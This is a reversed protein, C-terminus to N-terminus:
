YLTFLNAGEISAPSVCVREIESDFRNKGGNLELFELHLILFVLQLDRWEENKACFMFSFGELSVLRGRAVEDSARGSRPRVYCIIGQFEHPRSTVLRSPYSNFISKRHMCVSLTRM